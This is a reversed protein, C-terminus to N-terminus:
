KSQQNDNCNLSIIQKVNEMKKEIKQIKHVINISNSM